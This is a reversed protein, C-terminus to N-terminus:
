GDREVKTILSPRLLRLGSNDLDVLWFKPDADDGKERGVMKGAVRGKRQHEFVYRTNKRPKLM